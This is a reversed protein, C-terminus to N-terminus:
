PKSTSFSKQRVSRVSTSSNNSELTEEISGATDAEARVSYTGATATWPTGLSGCILTMGGARIVERLEPSTSVPAGNVRFSVVPPKHASTPGTGRNLLSAVFVVSDGEVPFAPITRINAVVLDPLAPAQTLSFEASLPLKDSSGGVRVTYSGTPVRYSSTSPEFIYFDDATLTFTVQRTQGPQISVKSFGKLQKVPMAVVPIIEGTSLYLQVVEEGAREGTNTVEVQVVVEDGANTNGPSVRLNKYEFTTYTLGSGFAFEPQIKQQDFWRYGVGAIAVNTFDNDRAPLQSDDKPITVPLKGSPNENGILIDALARGGEQGPYTVYLLGKVCDIVKNVACQGGTIVM